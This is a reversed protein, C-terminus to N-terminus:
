ATMMMQRMVPATSVMHRDLGVARPQAGFALALLQPLHLVPIGFRRGAVSEAKRQYIDLATHCLPSTTVICDAKMEVCRALFKASTRASLEENTMLIHFGCCDTDVRVPVSTAGSLAVLAELGERSGISAGPGRFSHCCAFPAVRLGALPRAIRDRLEREGIEELLISALHRVRPTTGYQVGASKLRELLSRMADSEEQMRRSTHLLNAQCTDCITLIELDQEAAMTLIRANLMFHLTPNVAKIECSGCCGADVLEALEIGVERALWKTAVDAERTSGKSTCGPYYAFRM